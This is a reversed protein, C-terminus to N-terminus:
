HGATGGDGCPSKMKKLHRIAIGMPLIVSLSCLVLASPIGVVIGDPTTKLYFASLVAGVILVVGASALIGLAVVLAKNAAEDSFIQQTSQHSLHDIPLTTPTMRFTRRNPLIKPRNAKHRERCQYFAVGDQTSVYFAIRRDVYWIM